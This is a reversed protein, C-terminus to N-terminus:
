SLSIQISTDDDFQVSRKLSGLHCFFFVNPSKKERVMIRVCYLFYCMIPVEKGGITGYCMMPM